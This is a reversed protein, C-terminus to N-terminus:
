ECADIIVQVSIDGNCAAYIPSGDTYEDSADDCDAVLNAEAVVVQTPTLGADRLTAATAADWVGIKCWGDADASDFGNAIWDQASDDADNGAFKDGHGDLMDAMDALEASRLDTADALIADVEDDSPEDGGTEIAERIVSELAARDSHRFDAVQRGHEDSTWGSSGYVMVPDSAQSWNAAVAYIEGPAWPEVALGSKGAPASVQNLKSKSMKM